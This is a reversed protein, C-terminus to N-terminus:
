LPSLETTEAPYPMGLRKRIAPMFHAELEAQLRSVSLARAHEDVYRAVDESTSCGLLGERMCILAAAMAQQLLQSAIPFVCATLAPVRQSPRQPTRAAHSDRTFPPQLFHCSASHNLPPAWIRAPATGASVQWSVLLCGDWVFATAEPSLWGVSLRQLPLQLMKSSGGKGLLKDLHASLEKDTAALLTSASEAVVSEEEGVVEKPPPPAVAAAAGALPMLPKPASCLALFMEVLEAEATADFTRLLPLTWFCQVAAAPGKKVSKQTPELLGGLPELSDAYSILRRMCILSPAHPFPCTSLPVHFLRISLPSATHVCGKMRPLQQLTMNPEAEQMAAQCQQLAKGDRLSLTALRSDALKKEFAKRAEPARLRLKWVCRRLPPPLPANLLWLMARREAQQDAPWKGLLQVAGSAAM